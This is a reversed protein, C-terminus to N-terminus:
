RMYRSSLGSFANPSHRGQMGVFDMSENSVHRIGQTAPQPVAAMFPNSSGANQQIPMTASRQQQGLIPSPQQQVATPDEQLTQLAQRQAYQPMNYLALISSKDHRIPQSLPQQAIDPPQQYQWPPQMNTQQQPLQQQQQWPNQSYSQAAQPQQYPMQEPQQQAFYAQQGLMPAPSETAPQQFVSQSQQLWSPLSTTPGFPNTSQQIVPAPSQAQSAWPSPQQTVSAPSQSAQPGWLNNPPATQFTSPQFFPNNPQMIETHQPQFPFAQANANQPQQPLQSPTYQWPNSQVQAPQFANNQYQSPIQPVAPLQQTFQQQPYPSPGTQSMQLGQFSHELSQTDQAPQPDSLFPNWSNSVPGASQSRPPPAPQSVSRRPSAERIDWPNNSAKPEAQRTKDISIGAGGTSVPTLTKQALASAAQDAKSDERLRVLTEVTQDLNGNLSKLVDSNQRHDEFGMDRLMVLKQDFNNSVGTIKMGLIQSPKRTQAKTADSGLNESGPSVPSMPPTFHDQKARHTTSSASRLNFPFRKPKPPLPPPEENWSGTSTSGTDQRAAPKNTSLSRSEYKQRIFREMAGDVEDADIPIDARTNRPNYVANSRVNGMKRMNDVQETSWRDMSLSKVKSVHTGLKRHLSACRVCLFIGLNWSAWGPSKASCDACRDNGPVTQILDELQRENRAQQRKSITAAM